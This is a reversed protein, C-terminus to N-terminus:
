EYDTKWRWGNNVVKVEKLLGCNLNHISGKLKVVLSLSNALKRFLSYIKAYLMWKKHFRM